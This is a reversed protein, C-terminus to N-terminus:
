PANHSHAPCMATVCWPNSWIQERSTQVTWIMKGENTIPSPLDVFQFACACFTISNRHHWEQLYREFTKMKTDTPNCHFQYSLQMKSLTKISNWIACPADLLFQLGTRHAGWSVSQNCRRCFSGRGSSSRCSCLLSFHLPKILQWEPRTIPM